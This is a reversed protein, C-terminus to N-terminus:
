QHLWADFNPNLSDIEVPQGLAKGKELWTRLDFAGNSKDSTTGDAM